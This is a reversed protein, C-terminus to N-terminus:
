NSGIKVVRVNDFEGIQKFSYLGVTGGSYTSDTIEKVMVGDVFFKLKNGSAQVKLNYVRDPIITYDWKEISVFRGGEWKAFELQANEYLRSVYMNQMGEDARFIIGTTSEPRKPPAKVSASVEYDTWEHGKTYRQIISRGMAEDTQRMVGGATEMNRYSGGLRRELGFTESLIASGSAGGRALRRPWSCILHKATYVWTGHLGEQKKDFDRLDLVM